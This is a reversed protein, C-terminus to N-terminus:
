PELAEEAELQLILWYQGAMFEHAVIKLSIEKMARINEYFPKSNDDDIFVFCFCSSGMIYAPRHGQDCAGAKM